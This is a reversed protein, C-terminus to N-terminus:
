NNIKSFIRELIQCIEIGEEMKNYFLEDKNNEKSREFFYKNEKEIERLIREQLEKLNM